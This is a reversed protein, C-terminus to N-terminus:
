VPVLDYLFLFPFTLIWLEAFGNVLTLIQITNVKLSDEICNSVYLVPRLTELLTESFKM